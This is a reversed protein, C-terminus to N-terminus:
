TIVENDRVSQCVVAIAISCETYCRATFVPLLMITHSTTIVSL